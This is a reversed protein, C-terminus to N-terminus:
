KPASLLLPYFQIKTHKKSNCLRCLPQINNIYNSGGKILPIIHDETLVIEPEKKGCRLCTNYWKDKLAKWESFTHSGLANNKRIIRQLTWFRKKEVWLKKVEEKGGKWMHNEPGKKFYGMAMRRIREESTWKRGIVIRCKGCRLSRRDKLEIFCKECLPMPKKLGKNWAVQGKHSESLKRKTAESAKLGIHSLALKRRHELTKIYGM